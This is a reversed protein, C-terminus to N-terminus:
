PRWFLDIPYSKFLSDDVYYGHGEPCFYEHISKNTIVVGKREWQILYVYMQYTMDSEEYLFKNDKIASCKAVAELSVTKVCQQELLEKEGCYDCTGQLPHCEKYVLLCLLDNWSAFTFYDEFGQQRLIEYMELTSKTREPELAVKISDKSKLGSDATITTAVGIKAEILAKAEDVSKATVLSEVRAQNFARHKDIAERCILIREIDEQTYSM